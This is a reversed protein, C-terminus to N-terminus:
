RQCDDFDDTYYPNELVLTDIKLFIPNESISVNLEGFKYLSKETVSDNTITTGFGTETYKFTEVLKDFNVTESQSQACVSISYGFILLIYLHKKMM